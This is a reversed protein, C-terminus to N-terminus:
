RNEHVFFTTEFLRAIFDDLSPFDSHFADCSRRVVETAHDHRKGTSFAHVEFLDRRLRTIWNGRCKFNSHEYLFSSIFGVRIRRGELDGRLPLPEAFQPYAKRAISHRLSGYLSQLELDNKGQYALQFSTLQTTLADVAQRVSEPSDLRLGEILRRVGEAWRARCVEIQEPTDYIIPLGLEANWAAGFLKPNIELARRYSAIAEDAM